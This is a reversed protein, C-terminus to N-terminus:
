LRGVIGRHIQMPVRALQEPGMFDYTLVESVNRLGGDAVFVQHKRREARWRSM